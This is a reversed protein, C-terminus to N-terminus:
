FIMISEFGRVFSQCKQPTINESSLSSNNGVHYTTLPRDVNVCKIGDTTFMRILYDGDEAVCMQEDFNGVKETVIGKSFLWTGPQAGSNKLLGALILSDGNKQVKREGSSIDVVEHDTTCFIYSQDPHRSVKAIQAAIKEPHWVDDGDLLAIFDGKAMQMGVNRAASVGRNKQYLIHFRNQEEQSLTAKHCELLDRTGDRSGDIVVITETNKYTQGAVSHIANMICREGNYTPIIVSVMPDEM